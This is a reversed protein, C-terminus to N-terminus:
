FPHFLFFSCTPCVCGTPIKNNHLVKQCGARFNSAYDCPVRQNGERAQKSGPENRKDHQSAAVVLAVPLCLPRLCGFCIFGQQSTPVTKPFSASELFMVGPLSWKPTWAASWRRKERPELQETWRTCIRGLAKTSVSVREKKSELRQQAVQRWRRLTFQRLKM